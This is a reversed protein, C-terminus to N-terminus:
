RQSEWATVPEGVAGQVREDHIHVQQSPKGSAPPWHGLGGAGQACGDGKWCPARLPASALLLPQHSQSVRVQMFYEELLCDVWPEAVEM